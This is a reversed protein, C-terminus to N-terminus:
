KVKQEKHGLIEHYTNKQCKTCFLYLRKFEYLNYGLRVEIQNGCSNCKLLWITLNIM